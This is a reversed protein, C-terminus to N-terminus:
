DRVEQYSQPHWDLSVVDPREYHGVSDIIAKNIKIMDAHCDAYLITDGFTPETLPMGGPAFICSGGRFNDMFIHDSMPFDEPFIDKTYYGCALLVFCGAELAHSRALFYGMFDTGTEDPEHIRPGELTVAAPYAMVHFDHGCDILRVRFRSSANEGCMLGGIRGINTAYTTLDTGDGAGWIAKETHTPTLKRHKGLIQGQNDIYLLTNYLTHSQPRSDLEQCGMVVNCNATAAAECLRKTDEGPILLANDYLQIRVSAWEVVMSDASEAWAPFGPLWAESFAVLKAGNQGAEIIKECAKDVSKSRDLYVPPTQVIAVRVEQHGGFIKMANM